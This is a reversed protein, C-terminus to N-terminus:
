QSASFANVDENSPVKWSVVSPDISRSDIVEIRRRPHRNTKVPIWRQSYGNISQITPHAMETPPLVLIFIGGFDFRRLLLRFCKSEQIM